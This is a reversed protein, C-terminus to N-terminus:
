RSTAGEGLGVLGWLGTETHVEDCAEPPASTGYFAKRRRRMTFEKADETVAFFV